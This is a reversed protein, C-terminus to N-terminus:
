SRPLQPLVKITIHPFTLVKGGAFTVEIEAHYDGITDFDGSAVTYKCTGATPSVISMNGSFKLTGTEDDQRQVKLLLTAGTLDIAADNADKLTFNIDYLVDNQIVEILTQPTPM